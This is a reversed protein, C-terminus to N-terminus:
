YASTQSEDPRHKLLKGQYDQLQHDKKKNHLYM